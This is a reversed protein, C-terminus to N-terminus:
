WATKGAAALTGTLEGLEDRVAENPWSGTLQWLRAGPVACGIAVVTRVEDPTV